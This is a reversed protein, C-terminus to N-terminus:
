SFPVASGRMHNCKWCMEFTEPNAEQCTRCRWQRSSIKAGQGRSDSAESEDNELLFVVRERPEVARLRVWRGALLRHVLFMVVATGITFPLLARSSYHQSQIQQYIVWAHLGIWIVALLLGVTQAHPRTVVLRTLCSNCEIGAVSGKLHARNRSILSWLQRLDVRSGCRPCKPM